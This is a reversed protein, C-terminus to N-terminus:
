AEAGSEVVPEISSPNTAPKVHVAQLGGQSGNMSGDMEPYALGGHKSVDLGEEEMHLPVRFIGMKQMLMFFPVMHGLTWAVVAILALLQNGLMTADGGYLLGITKAGQEVGYANQLNFPSAFFAPALLGWMGACLHVPAANVVDDVKLRLLAVRGAQYWFVSIIGIIISAWPDVVSCASTIGVLGALAGNCTEELDYLHAAGSMQHTLFMNTVAGSAASLTTTTATKAAIFSYGHIALTSGPNFGYWGFWLIFTGLVVLSSNHGPMPQVDGNPGFRGIRPGLVWAGALAAAGGVMHVVGCGAFDVVGIGGMPDDTFASLWGDSSWIWHAVVPYVWTTLVLSYGAYAGMQCREAVSGSVITAATAAFAFQFFFSHYSDRTDHSQLFFFANGCFWNGPNSGYAVGYGVAWFGLAGVCADLVNKLMINKANKMRVTGACLM